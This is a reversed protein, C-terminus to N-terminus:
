NICGYAAIEEAIRTLSDVLAELEAHDPARSSTHKAKIVNQTCNGKYAARVSKM